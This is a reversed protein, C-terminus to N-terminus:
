AHRWQLQVCHVRNQRQGAQWQVRSQCQETCCSKQLSKDDACAEMSIACLSSQESTTGGAIPSQESMTRYLLQKRCYELYIAICSFPKRIRCSSLDYELQVEQIRFSRTM